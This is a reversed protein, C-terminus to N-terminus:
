EDEDDHPSEDDDSRSRALMRQLFRRNVGAHEAARTVNGDARKLVETLYAETWLRRAERLPLEASVARAIAPPPKTEHRGANQASWGLLVSREIVNRLERVNGAWSRALLMPVLEEPLVRGAGAFREYFHQALAPIDDRRIRLPPLEVEVVALRYYLDERFEATNVANALPRNTAALVRVDVRRVPGGGVRRAERTELIRLLKPQLSAPLEGVEDFFLTGGHAEEFVGPRDAVAGSFAGRVHGFVESEILNPAVSGCDFAVFPGKSRASAQHIARAVLEKGTGTEGQILVTADTPAVRELVAYVRRMETSGGILDGFRDRDSLPLYTVDDSLEIRLQTAGMHVVAGAFLDADRVLVGNVMTGNTSGADVIRVRDPRVQIECQLRSVTPDTLVLHNGQAKGIKATGQVNQLTRGKDPGAVVVLRVAPVELAASKQLTRTTKDDSRSPM